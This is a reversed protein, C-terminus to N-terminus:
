FEVFTSDGWIRARFQERSVIEGARGILAALVRLPQPQIKLPRGRHFLRGSLSDFQFRRFVSARQRQRGDLFGRSETAEVRM